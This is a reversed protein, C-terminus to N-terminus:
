ALLDLEDSEELAEVNDEEDSHVWKFFSPLEVDFQYVFDGQHNYEIM